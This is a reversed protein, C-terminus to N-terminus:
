WNSCSSGIGTATREYFLDKKDYILIYPSELEVEMKDTNTVFYPSLYGRDFQMGEVTKVETETGKAEEVTIVGENGVKNMADAIMTGIESDNNASITGVQAIEDSNSIAKSQSALSEVVSDVAKEVGRKLDMPNAGAAVNKIGHQSYQSRWYPLLLPETVQTM